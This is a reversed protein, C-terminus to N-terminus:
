TCCSFDVCASLPSFYIHGDHLYKGTILIFCPCKMRIVQNQFFGNKAIERIEDFVRKKLDDGTPQKDNHTIGLSKLVEACDDFYISHKIRQLLKAIELNDKLFHKKDSEIKSVIKLLNLWAVNENKSFANRVRGHSLGLLESLIKQNGFHLEIYKKTDENM